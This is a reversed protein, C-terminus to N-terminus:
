THLGQSMLIREWEAICEEALKKGSIRIGNGDDIMCDIENPMDETSGAQMLHMTYAGHDPVAGSGPRAIKLKRHKTGNCLDQCITLAKSQGEAMSIIARKTPDSVLPDNDVWDKVHSCNQFFAWAM